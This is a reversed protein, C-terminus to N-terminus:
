CLIRDLETIKGLAQEIAEAKLGLAEFNGSRTTM